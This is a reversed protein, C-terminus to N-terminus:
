KKKKTKSKKDEEELMKLFDKGVGEGMLMKELSAMMQTVDFYVGQVNDKNSKVTLYDCPHPTLKQSGGFRYGLVKLMFYEDPVALVHLGTEDTKGDGTSMIVSVLKRLKHLYIKTNVSDNIIKASIYIQDMDEMSFPSKELLKKYLAIREKHEEVSLSDKNDIVRLRNTTVTDDGTGLGTSNDYFHYGYYLYKYEDKKLTTDNAKYRKLLPPYYYASEKNAIAKEIEAYDPKIFGSTQAFALVPFLLLLLLVRNM